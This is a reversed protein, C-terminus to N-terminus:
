MAVKCKLESLAIETRDNENVLHCIGDKLILKFWIPVNLSNKEYPGPEYPKAVFTSSVSLDGDIEKIPMGGASERIADHLIDLSQQNEIILIASTTASHSVSWNSPLLPPLAGIVCTLIFRVFRSSFTM